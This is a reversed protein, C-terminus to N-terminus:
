AITAAQLFARVATALQRPAEMAGIHPVGPLALTKAGAISRALEFTADPPILRDAGGALLLTPARIAAPDAACPRALMGARRRKQAADRSRGRFLDLV